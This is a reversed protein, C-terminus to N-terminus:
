MAGSPLKMDYKEVEQFRKEFEVIFKAFAEGNTRKYEVFDM